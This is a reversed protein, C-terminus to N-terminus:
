RLHHRRRPVHCRVDPSLRRVGRLRGHVPEAAAGSRSQAPHPRCRGPDVRVRLRRVRGEILGRVLIVLTAMGILLALVRGVVLLTSGRVHARSEQSVTPGPPERSLDSDSGSPRRARSSEEAAAAPRGVLASMLGCRRDDGGRRAAVVRRAAAGRAGPDRHRPRRTANPERDILLKVDDVLGLPRDELGYKSGISLAVSNSVAGLDVDTTASRARRGPRELPAGTRACGISTGAGMVQSRSAQQDGRGAQSADDKATCRVQGTGLLELKYEGPVTYAIGKRVIDYTEDGDPNSEVQLWVSVFFNSGTGANLQPSSPVMIWSGRKQSPSRRGTTVRSAWRCGVRSSGPIVTARHCRRGRVDGRGRGDADAGRRPDDPSPGRWVAVAGPPSRCCGRGGHCLRVAEGGELEVGALEDQLVLPSAM